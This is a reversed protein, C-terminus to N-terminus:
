EEPIVAGADRLLAEVEQCFRPRHKAANMALRGARAAAEREGMALHCRALELLPEAFEPYREACRGYATVADQFRGRVHEALGVGYWPDEDPDDLLAETGTDASREDAAAAALFADVAGDPDESDLLARGLGLHAQPVADNLVLANRYADAAGEAFGAAELRNGVVLWEELEPLSVDGRAAREERLQARQGEADRAFEIM